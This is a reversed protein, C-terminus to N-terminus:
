VAAGIKTNMERKSKKFFLFIDFFLMTIDLMIEEKIKIGEM